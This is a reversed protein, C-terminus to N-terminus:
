VKKMEVQPIFIKWGTDMEKEGPSKKATERM